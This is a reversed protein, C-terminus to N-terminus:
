ALSPLTPNWAFLWFSLAACLFSIGYNRVSKNSFAPDRRGLLKSKAAAFLGWGSMVLWFTVVVMVWWYAVGDNDTPTFQDYMQLLARGLSGM